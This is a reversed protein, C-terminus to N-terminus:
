KRLPREDLGSAWMSMEHAVHALNDALNSLTLCNFSGGLSM